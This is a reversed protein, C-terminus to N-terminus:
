HSFLNFHLVGVRSRTAAAQLGSSLVHIAKGDQPDGKAALKYLPPFDQKTLFHSLCCRNGNSSAGVFPLLGQETPFYNFHLINVRSWTGAAKLGSSLM